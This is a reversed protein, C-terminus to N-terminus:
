AATTEPEVRERPLFPIIPAPERCSGCRKAWPREGLLERDTPQGCMVCNGFTGNELKEIADLVRREELVCADIFVSRRQEELWTQLFRASGHDFAPAAAM